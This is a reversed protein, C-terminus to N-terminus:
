YSTKKFHLHGYIGVSVLVLIFAAAITIDIGPQKFELTVPACKSLVVNYDLYDISCGVEFQGAEVTSLTIERSITESPQILEITETENGSLINLGSPQVKVFLNYLPDHGENAILLKATAKEGATFQEKQVQIFPKIKIEPEVIWITPRDSEILVTEGFPNAFEVTSPLLSIPGVLKPRLQYNFEVMGPEICSTDAARKKCAPVTGRVQTTGKLLETEPTEKELEDKRYKLLVDASESGFNKLVATVTFEEFIKPAPENSHLEFAGTKEFDPMQYYGIKSDNFIKIKTTEFFTTACIKLSNEELIKEQPINYRGFGNAFDMSKISGIKEENLFVEVTSKKSATPSFEAHVSAIGFVESNLDVSPIFPVEICGSELPAEVLFDQHGLDAFTTEFITASLASNAFFLISVAFFIKQISNM